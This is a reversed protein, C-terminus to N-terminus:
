SVLSEALNENLFCLLYRCQEEIHAKQTASNCIGTIQCNPYKQALYLSLSGWGCGVDLVSHGDEIQSRECYLELMAKEADELTSSKDPFFCCSCSSM